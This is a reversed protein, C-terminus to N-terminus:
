VRGSKKSLLVNLAGRCGTTPRHQCSAAGVARPERRLRAPSVPQGGLVLPLRRRTTLSAARIRVIALEISRLGIRGLRPELSRRGDADERLTVRRVADAVERAIALIPRRRRPSSIVWGLHPPHNAAPAPECSDNPNQPTAFHWVPTRNRLSRRFASGAPSDWGALWSIRGTNEVAQLM